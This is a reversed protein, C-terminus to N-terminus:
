AYTGYLQGKKKLVIAYIIYVVTSIFWTIPYIWYTLEIHHWIQGITMFVLVRIACWCVLMVVM